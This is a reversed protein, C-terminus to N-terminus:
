PTRWADLSIEAALRDAVQKPLVRRVIRRSARSLEWSRRYLFGRARPPYLALRGLERTDRAWLRKYPEDGHLLDFEDIGENMASRISLGVALTGVGYSAYAPDFGSQYYYFTAGYRFGYLSAAPAGDLSLLFLRLWGRRLAQQSLDEHFARLAPAHFANSGGRDGWRRDHLVLLKALVDRREGESQVQVFELKHEREAKRLGRRLNARHSRRLSALYAEWSLSALDVFPCDGTRGESTTWGQQTLRGALELACTGSRRIQTLHLMMRSSALYKALADLTEQERHRHVIVDLYDSGVSGSGMFELSGFPLLGGLTSPKRALPAIAVLEGGSRVALISLSRTGALHKWWTHIWEWTLFLCDARSVGLLNNWEDHLGEFVTPDEIREVRLTRDM